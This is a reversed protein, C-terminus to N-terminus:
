ASGAPVPHLTRDEARAARRGADVDVTRLLLMGGIFFIVLALIGNRSSGTMQGIVGFMLPGVIGAFKEFVSFFAFFESSKARPVLTAYLSRSLAQAGGQVMGVAFALMWFHTATSMFYGGVSIASYVVLTIYIGNKTGIRAGLAGFLFTFPIGVVQVLLLAAIMANQGIGLEAGYITAMKIITGIGDGYLWFALLFRLLQGYHKMEGLTERLRGFAVGLPNADLREGSELQRPPEPVNRLLPISFVLWWVAVSVFSLRTAVAADPIGFLGPQAIMLANVALLVAGGVYGIAFGAASVRDVEDDEAIHPLLSDSFVISGTFGVNGLIFLLSALLWDGQGVFWLAGSGIVGLLMFAALFRKKAGLYDAMAGLVPSAVAVLLLAIAATYGWYATAVNPALDAGAVRSYYIPLVAALITTAFASNAWDYLAWSRLERRHLGLRDLWGRRPAATPPTVGDM